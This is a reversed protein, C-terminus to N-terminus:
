RRVVGAVTPPFYHLYNLFRVEHGTPLAMGGLGTAGPQTLAATQQELLYQGQQLQQLTQQTALQPQVIGFYNIGPSGGRRLNLFPSFTPIGLPNSPPQGFGAPPPFFQAPARGPEWVLLLMGGILLSWGIRKM